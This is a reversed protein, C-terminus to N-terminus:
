YGIWISFCMDTDEGTETRLRVNETDKEVVKKVEYM